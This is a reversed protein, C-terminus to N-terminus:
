RNRKGPTFKAEEGRALRQMNSRHQWIVLIGTFVALLCRPLSVDQWIAKCVFTLIPLLAAVTVSCLSVTRSLAFTLFFVAFLGIFVRWDILLAIVAGVSVGKGGRFHFFVPWCHGIVCAAGAIAFGIEGGLWFGLLASAITKLADCGLTYFGMGMGFVRAANTAGANGSGLSRVDTKYLHRSLLVASSVSGFLYGAAAALLYKFIM